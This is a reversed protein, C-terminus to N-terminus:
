GSLGKLKLEYLADESKDQYDPQDAAWDVFRSLGDRLSITPSFGLQSKATSIDAFNHRIDGMRFDGSIIYNQPKELVRYYEEVLGKVSTPSGSGINAILIDQNVRKSAKVLAKVVDTVYVFDRSERGDEFINVPLGSRIRNYFISIIGTYPNKLSQGAGYVNQFRLISLQLNSNARACIGCLLEQTYKSAAYISGPKAACDEPTAISRLLSGAENYFDFVKRSLNEKSRPEPHYVSGAADEYLGEGYISRSSALILKVRKVRVRSSLAELLVATGLENVKVYDSIEYMSQGTGTEASTSYSM